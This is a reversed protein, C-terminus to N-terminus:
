GGFIRPLNRAGHLIREVRIEAPLIRFLILYQRHVAMRIGPMLNDRAVYAEPNQAIRDIATRLQDVFTAARSPNDRAIFDGIEELDAEARPSLRLPIM